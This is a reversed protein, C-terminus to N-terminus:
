HSVIYYADFLSPSCKWEIETANGVKEDIELYALIVM